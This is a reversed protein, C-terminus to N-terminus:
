LMVVTPAIFEPDKDPDSFEMDKFGDKAQKELDEYFCRVRPDCKIMDETIKGHIHVGSASKARSLAVYLQGPDWGAPIINIEDFTMGQAKHITLAYSLRIPFQVIDYNCDDDACIHIRQLVIDHGNASITIEQTINNIAKITGFMGNYYLGNPDNVTFIINAKVKIHLEPELQSCKVNAYKCEQKTQRNYYTQQFIYEDGPLSKLHEACISNATDKKGCLFPANPNYNKNFLKTLPEICSTDGTKLRDLLKAYELDEAQRHKEKLYITAFYKQFNPSHIVLHNYRYGRPNVPQLQGIDGIVILKQEPKIGKSRNTYVTYFIFDFLKATVMSIEDIIIIDANQIQKPITITANSEVLGPYINFAHFFTVGELHSAALGTSASVVINKGAKRESSIYYKILETKGTGADGTLFIYPLCPVELVNLAFLQEPYLTKPPILM